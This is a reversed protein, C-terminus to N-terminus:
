KDMLHPPQLKTPTVNSSILLINQHGFPASTLSAFAEFITPKLSNVMMMHFKLIHFWLWLLETSCTDAEGRWENMLDTLWEYMKWDTKHCTWLCQWFSNEVSRASYHNRKWTGIIQRKRLTMWYSSVDEEKVVRWKKRGKLLMNQFAAVVGSVVLETLRGEEKKKKQMYSTGKRTSKIYCKRMKWM